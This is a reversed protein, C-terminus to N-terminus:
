AAAHAAIQRLVTDLARDDLPKSLFGDMGAEFCSQQDTTSTVAVIPVRRVSQLESRRIHRTAGIGDLVPMEVDMLILDFHERHAAEVARRGNDVVQVRHGRRALMGRALKQYLKSDEAILIHLSLSESPVPARSTM